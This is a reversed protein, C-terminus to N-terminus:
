MILASELDSTNSEPGDLGKSKRIQAIHERADAESSPIDM